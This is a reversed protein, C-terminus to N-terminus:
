GDFYLLIWTMRQNTNEARVNRVVLKGLSMGGVYLIEGRYHHVYLNELTV